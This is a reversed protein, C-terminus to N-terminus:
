TIKLTIKTKLTKSEKVRIYKRNLTSYFTINNFNRKISSTVGSLNSNIKKLCNSLPQVPVFQNSLRRHSEKHYLCLYLDTFHM